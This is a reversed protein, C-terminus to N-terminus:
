PSLLAKALKTPPHLLIETRRNLLRSGADKNSAITDFAGRAQITLRRAEVNFDRHLIRVITSARLASLDWNDRINARRVPVNDTHGIVIVELDPYQKLVLSLLGISRVGKNTLKLSAQQFLLSDSFTMQIKGDEVLHAVESPAYSEYTKDLSKEVQSLLAEQSQIIPRLAQQAAVSDLTTQYTQIQHNADRLAQQCDGFAQARRLSDATLQSIRYDMNAFHRRLDAFQVKQDELESAIALAQDEWNQHQRLEELYKKKGVCSSIGLILLGFIIKNWHM